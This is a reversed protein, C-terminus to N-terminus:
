EQCKRAGVMEAESDKEIVRAENGLIYLVENSVRRREWHRYLSVDPTFFRNTDISILSLSDMGGPSSALVCECVSGTFWGERCPSDVSWPFVINERKEIDPM